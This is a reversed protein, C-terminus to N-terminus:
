MLLLPLGSQRASLDVACTYTPSLVRTLLHGSVYMSILGVYSETYTMLNPVLRVPM